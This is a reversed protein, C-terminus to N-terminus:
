PEKLGTKGSTKDSDTAAAYRKDGREDSRLVRETDHLWIDTNLFRNSGAHSLWTPIFGPAPSVFFARTRGARIPAAYIEVGDDVDDRTRGRGREGHEM